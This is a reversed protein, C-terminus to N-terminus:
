QTVWLWHANNKNIFKLRSHTSSRKGQRGWGTLAATDPDTQLEQIPRSTSQDQPGHVGVCFSMWINSMMVVALSGFVFTVEM